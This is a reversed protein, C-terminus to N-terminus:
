GRCVLCRSSGHCRSELIDWIKQRKETDNLPYKATTLEKESVPSPHIPISYIPIRIDKKPIMEPYIKVNM